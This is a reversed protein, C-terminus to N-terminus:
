HLLFSDNYHNCPLTLKGMDEEIFSVNSFCEHFVFSANVFYSPDNMQHGRWAGAGERQRLPIQTTFIVAVELGKLPLQTTVIGPALM